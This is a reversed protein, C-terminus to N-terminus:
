GRLKERKRSVKGSGPVSREESSGGDSESLEADGSIVALWEGHGLKDEWPGTVSGNMRNLGPLMLDPGTVPSESNYENHVRYM